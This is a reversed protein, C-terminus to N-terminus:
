AKQQKSYRHLYILKLVKISPKFLINAKILKILFVQFLSLLNLLPLLHRKELFTYTQLLSINVESFLAKHKGLNIVYSELTKLFAEDNEKLRHKVPANIHLIEVKNKELTAGWLADEYGMGINPFPQALMLNKPIAFAMTIFSQYPKAKREALSRMEIQLGYRYRLQNDAKLDESDYYFGGYILSNPHEAIAQLYQKIAGKDPLVDSDFYLLNPFRAEQALRNRLRSAGLNQEFHLLSVAAYHEEYTSYIRKYVESSADNGLIIEYDLDKITQLDEHIAQLLDSCDYNYVPILISVQM